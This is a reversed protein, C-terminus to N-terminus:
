WDKKLSTWDKKIEKKIEKDKLKICRKEAEVWNNNTYKYLGLFNASALNYVALDLPENRAGPPNIFQIEQKGRRM